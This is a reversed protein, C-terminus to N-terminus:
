PVALDDGVARRAVDIVLVVTRATNSASTRM